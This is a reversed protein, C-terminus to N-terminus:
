KLRQFFHQLQLRPSAGIAPGISDRHVASASPDPPRSPPLQKIDHPASSRVELQMQDEHTTGGGLPRYPNHQEECGPFSVPHDPCCRVALLGLSPSATSIAWIAGADAPPRYTRAASAKATTSWTALTVCRTVVTVCNGTVNTGGAVVEHYPQTGDMLGSVLLCGHVGAGAMCLALPDPGFCCEGVPPHLSTELVTWQSLRMCTL